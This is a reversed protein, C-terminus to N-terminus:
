IVWSAAASPLAEKTRTCGDATFRNTLKPLRSFAPLSGTSSITRSGTIIAASAEFYVHQQSSTMTVVASWLWAISTGLAILVDMNAGGGRLANWAGAYFRRGIVFQVPTALAFQLWRPLFDAHMSTGGILMTVMQVVFPATLLIAVVLERRLAHWAAGWQVKHAHSVLIGFIVVGILPVIWRRAREWRLACAAWFGNAGVPAVSDSIARHM